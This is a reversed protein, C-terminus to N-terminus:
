IRFPHIVILSFTFFAGPNLCFIDSNMCFYLTNANKWFYVISIASTTTVITKALQGPFSPSIRRGGLIVPRIASFAYTNTSAVPISIHMRVPPLMSRDTPDTTQKAPATPQVSIADPTLMHTATSIMSAIPKRIPAKWPKQIALSCTGANMAVRAPMYAKRPKVLTTM